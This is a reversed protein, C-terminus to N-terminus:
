YVALRSHSAPFIFYIPLVSAYARRSVATVLPLHGRRSPFKTSRLLLSPCNLPHQWYDRFSQLIINLDTGNPPQGKEKKFM